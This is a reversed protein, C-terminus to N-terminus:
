SYTSFVTVMLGITFILLSNITVSLWLCSNTWEDEPPTTQWQL